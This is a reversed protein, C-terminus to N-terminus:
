PRSADSEEGATLRDYVRMLEEESSFHIQVVGGGRRTRRIEVKTQLRQTLREAAAASHVDPPTAAARAPATPPPESTLRELERATLGEAVAREALATQEAARGLALLPRAQGATLRGSRLLDLVPQPLNLLRLANTVTTRAKGVRRAVEEQSLGFDEQLAQFALAEEVPNLDSRQLNEVLALELLERDNGVARVVVPVEALGALQAARWRREGAVITYASSGAPTVVIPQVLGQERISAALGELAERDFDRRPQKRNPQLQGVPLTRVDATAPQLLADLGRGLGRRKAPPATV